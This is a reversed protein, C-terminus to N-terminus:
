DWCKDPLAASIPTDLLSTMKLSKHLYKFIMVPMLVTKLDAPSM